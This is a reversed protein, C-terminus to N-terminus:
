RESRTTEAYKNQGQKQFDLCLLIISTGSFLYMSDSGLSIPDRDQEGLSVDVDKSDHRHNYSLLQEDWRPAVIPSSLHRSGWQGPQSQMYTLHIGNGHSGNLM